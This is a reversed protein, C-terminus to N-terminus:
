DTMLSFSSGKQCDVSYLTSYWVKRSGRSMSATFSCTWATSPVGRWNSTLSKETRSKFWFMLGCYFAQRVLKQFAFCLRINGTVDTRRRQESCFYSAIHLEEASRHGRYRCWVPLQFAPVSSSGKRVMCTSLGQPLGRCQPLLSTNTSSTRRLLAPSAREGRGLSFPFAWINRSSIVSRLAWCSGSHNALVQAWRSLPKTVPPLSNQWSWSFEPKGGFYLNPSPFPFFCLVFVWHQLNSCM